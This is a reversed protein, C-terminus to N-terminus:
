TGATDSARQTVESPNSKQAESEKDMSFFSRSLGQAPNTQPTLAPPPAFQGAKSCTVVSRSTPSCPAHQGQQRFAQVSAGPQPRLHCGVAMNLGRGRCHQSSQLPAQPRTVVAQVVSSSWQLSLFVSARPLSKLHRQSLTEAWNAAREAGTVLPRWPGPLVPTEGARRPLSPVGGVCEGLGPRPVTHGLPQASCPSFVSWLGPPLLPLAPSLTIHPDPVGVVRPVQPQRRGGAERMPMESRGWGTPGSGTERQM